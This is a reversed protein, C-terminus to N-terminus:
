QKIAGKKKPAFSFVIATVAGIAFYTYIDEKFFRKSLLIVTFDAVILVLFLIIYKKTNNM